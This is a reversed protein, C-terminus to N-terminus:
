ERHARADQRRTDALYTKVAGAIAAVLQDQVRPGEAPKRELHSLFGLELLV